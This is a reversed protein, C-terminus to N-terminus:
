TQTIEDQGDTNALEDQGKYCTAEVEVVKLRPLILKVKQGLWISEVKLNGKHGHPQIIVKQEPQSMKVKIIPLSSDVKPGLHNPEIRGSRVLEVKQKLQSQEIKSWSHSKDVKMQPQSFNIKLEPEGPDVENM